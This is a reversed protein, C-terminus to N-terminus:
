SYPNTIMASYLM